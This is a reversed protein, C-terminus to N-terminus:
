GWVEVHYQYNTGAAVTVNFKAQTATFSNFTAKGVETVTGAVRERISVLRDTYAFTKSGTGDQFFTNCTSYGSNDCQGVSQHATVDSGNKAGVTIKLATPQFGCSITYTTVTNPTISTNYYPM